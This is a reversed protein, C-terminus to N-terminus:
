HLPRGCGRLSQDRWLVDVRSSFVQGSMSDRCPEGTVIISLSDGNSETNYRTTRAQPDSVPETYAFRQARGDYGITLLFGHQRDIELVWAPEQGIARYSIGRLKAGEWIAARPDNRCGTLRHGRITIEATQGPALDGSEAPLYYADEGRYGPTDSQRQLSQSLQRSFLHGRAGDTMVVITHEMGDCRYVFTSAQASWRQAVASLAVGLLLLFMLLRYVYLQQAQVVWGSSFIM